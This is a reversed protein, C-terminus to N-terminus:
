GRVESVDTLSLGFATTFDISCNRRDIGVDRGQKFEVAGLVDGMQAPIRMQQAFEGIKKCVSEEANKGTLFVLREIHTDTLMSEFYRRCADLESMLRDVMENERLLKTGIPVVRAFLLNTHRCIVINSYNAGANILMAVTDVESKRRAFFKVYSNAMALPWVGIERIQLGAREYIALHRDVVKRETAMVLVDLKDSGPQKSTLHKIVADSSNFGLKDEVGALVDASIQKDTGDAVKLQDIFVDDCPLGAVVNKGKFGVRTIEAAITDAVWRQWNGSAYEIGEPKERCSASHLYLGDKDFGLQAMKLFSGEIDVGIPYVRKPCIRKKLIDFMVRNVDELERSSLYRPLLLFSGGIM